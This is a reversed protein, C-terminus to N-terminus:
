NPRPCLPFHQDPVSARSLLYSKARYQIQHAFGILAIPVHKRTAVVVHDPAWFLPAFDQNPRNFRGQFLDNTLQTLLALSEYFFQFDHGIVNVQQHTTLRLQPDM